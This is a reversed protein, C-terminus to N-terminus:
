ARILDSKGVPHDKRKLLHQARIKEIRALFNGVGDMGLGCEEPTPLNSRALDEHIAFALKESDLQSPDLSRILGLEAFKSARLWQEKRPFMRPVAIIPKQCSLAEMLANYGGMTVILDATRLHEELHTTFRLIQANQLSGFCGALTRSDTRSLFPGTILTGQLTDPANRLVELFRNGLPLGDEGGGSVCVIHPKNTRPVFSGSYVNEPGIQHISRRLYGLYHIRERTNESLNYMEGLDFINKNGYVWVHDFFSEVLKFCGDFKWNKKVKESEDIVDRLGIVIETGQAKLDPMLPLLEGRLGTPVHDVIFLDPGFGTVSRRLTERRRALTETINMLTNRSVYNGERDKTVADLTVISTRAPLSYFRARSSGTVILIEINDLHLQVQQALLLCRRFHGLGYGDHSYFAIRYREPISDRTHAVPGPM